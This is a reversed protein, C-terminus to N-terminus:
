VITLTKKTSQKRPQFNVYVGILTPANALLSGLVLPILLYTFMPYPGRVLHALIIKSAIRGFVIGIVAGFLMLHKQLVVSTPSGLWFYICALYLAFPALQVLQPLLPRNKAKLHSRVNFICLPIHILTLLIIFAAYVLDVIQWQGLPLSGVVVSSLANSGFVHELTVKWMGPGYIGSLLIFVCALVIGETPGNVYGLYLTGTHFHEWTSFYFPVITLLFMNASQWTPGLGM